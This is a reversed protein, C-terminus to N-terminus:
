RQGAWHHSPTFVNSPPATKHKLLWRDYFRRLWSPSVGLSFLFSVLGNVLTTKIVGNAHWRNSSSFLMSSPLFVIRGTRRLVRSLALDEMIPLEPFGGVSHFVQRWVFMGQDGYPLRLLRSRWSAARGVWRCMRWPSDITLDFAGAVAGEAILRRPIEDIAAPLVFTDARLFLLIDGTAHRAGINMQRARGRQAVFVYPTFHRAVEVTRDDSGGDVVILEVDPRDALTRIAMPLNSEENLTPIIVSVLM